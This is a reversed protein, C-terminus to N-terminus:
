YMRLRTEGSNWEKVMEMGIKAERKWRSFAVMNQALIISHHNVLLCSYVWSQCLSGTAGTAKTM